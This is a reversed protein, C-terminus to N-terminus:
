TGFRLWFDYQEDVKRLQPHWRGFVRETAPRMELLLELAREVEGSKALFMAAFCRVTLTDPHDEGFTNIHDAVLASWRQM